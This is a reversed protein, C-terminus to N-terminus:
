TTLSSLRNQGTPDSLILYCSVESLMDPHARFDGTHLLNGFPGQILFMVAGPCHNADILRVTFPMCTGEGVHHLMDMDLAVVRSNSIRFRELLMCRSLPSCFLTGACWGDHLGHLHDTHMHSLFFLSIGAPFLLVTM